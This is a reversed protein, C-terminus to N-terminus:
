NIIFSDFVAVVSQRKKSRHASNRSIHSDLYAGIIKGLEVVALAHHKAFDHIMEISLDHNNPVPNHSLVSCFGSIPHSCIYKQESPMFFSHVAKPVDDAPFCM